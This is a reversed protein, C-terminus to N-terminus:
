RHANSPHRIIHYTGPPIVGNRPLQPDDASAVGQAAALAAAALTIGAALRHTKMREAEEPDIRSRTSEHPAPMHYGGVPCNWGSNDQQRDHQAAIPGPDCARSPAFAPTGRAM